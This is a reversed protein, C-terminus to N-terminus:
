ACARPRHEVYVEKEHAQPASEILWHSRVADAIRKADAPLSSIFFRAETGGTSSKANSEQTEEIMVVTNLGAWQDKQNLWDIQDSVFCQRTEIRGHGKDM